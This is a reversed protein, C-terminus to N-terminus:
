WEVDLASTLFAMLPATQRCFAVFTNLFDGQLAADESFSQVAIFDKRKLDEILPHEADFGKPPRKLSEGQLECDRQFAKGSIAKRWDDPCDVMAQRINKLSASDPHWIGGGAFVQDPELHLYFGPTHVDKGRKHRFQAAAHTKYPAKNKSFRVDRYIRFLSGGVPRPDARIHASIKPVKKGFDSIFGLLPEKVDHEYRKKNDQFWDRSNNERLERLFDFLEPGFHPEPM